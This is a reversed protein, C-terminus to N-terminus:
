NSPVDVNIKQLIKYNISTRLICLLFPKSEPPIPCTYTVSVTLSLLIM